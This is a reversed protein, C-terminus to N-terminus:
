RVVVTIKVTVEVAGADGELSPATITSRHDLSPETIHLPMARCHYHVMVAHEVAGDSYHM